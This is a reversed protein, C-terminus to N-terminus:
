GIPPGLISIILKTLPALDDLPKTLVRETPVSFRLFDKISEQENADTLFIAQLDPNLAHLRTSVDVEDAGDIALIYLDFKQAVAKQVADQGGDACTVGYGLKDRLFEGLVRRVNPDRDAILIQHPM